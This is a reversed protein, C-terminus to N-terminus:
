PLIVSLRTPDLDLQAFLAEVFREGLRAPFHAASLLREQPSGLPRCAARLDALRRAAVQDRRAATATAKGAFAELGREIHARTKALPGALGPDLALAGRELEDLAAGIAQRAPALLSGSVDGALAADLDLDAAVLAALDLPSEALKRARSPELVLTQPRLAVAPAAVGLLGYLPAAQTLYSVEGPGMVELATGLVADQIAPRALVGPSVVAPNDSIAALLEDIPRSASAGGRPLWGDDEWAIRRREGGALFFLPSTDPQPEVQLSYGRAIIAAETAALAAAVEDRREILAALHPRQAAKLEPLFADVLLPCRMGLLQAFLRAFAEGFRAAPRYARVLTEFRAAAEDPLAARLEALVEEVKAGLSRMGLPMLPAPDPGLDLRLPGERTEFATWSAERWDHDESAVWFVAVAPRGAAELREAWLTAAAAKTLAYLPGGLLGPQQGTVVVLTAPDALKEALEEAAPHGYSANAVALAAALDRRDVAPATLKAEEGPRVLALPALLDGDRGALFAAPLPALLGAAALDVSAPRPASPSAGPAAAVSATVTM